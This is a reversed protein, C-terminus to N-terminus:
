ANFGEWWSRFHTRHRACNWRLMTVFETLLDNAHAELHPGIIDSAVFKLCRARAVSNRAAWVILATELRSSKYM